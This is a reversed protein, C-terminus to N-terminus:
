NVSFGLVVRFISSFNQGATLFDGKAFAKEMNAIYGKILVENSFYLFVSQSFNVPEKLGQIDNILLEINCKNYSAMVQTNFITLMAPVNNCSSFSFKLCKDVMADVNDYAARIAKTDNYCNSLPTSTKQFGLALGLVFDCFDHAFPTLANEVFNVRFMADAAPEFIMGFLTGFETGAQAYNEQSILDVTSQIKAQIESYQSVMKDLIAETGLREISDSVASTFASIDCDNFFAQFEASSMVIDLYLKQLSAYDSFDSFLKIIRTFLADQEDLSLCNENNVASGTFATHAADLFDKVPDLPLAQSFTGLTVLLILAVAKM